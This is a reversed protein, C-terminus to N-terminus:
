RWHQTNSVCWAVVVLALSVLGSQMLVVYQLAAAAVV